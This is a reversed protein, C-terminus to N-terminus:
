LQVAFRAAEEVISKRWDYPFPIVEHTASLYEIVDQYVGAVLSEARVRDSDKHYQLKAIGGTALANFNLWIQEGGSSLHAGM